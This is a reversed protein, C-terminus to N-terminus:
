KHSHTELLCVPDLCRKAVTENGYGDIGPMFIKTCQLHLHPYWGGNISSPAIAGVIAGKEYVKGIGSVLQHLHGLIFRPGHKVGFFLQGGWGGGQDKDERAYLLEAACPLAVFTNVPVNYDIGLHITHGKTMYHDRWLVSRDELFGGYSFDLRRDSHLKSVWQECVKADLLPNPGFTNLKAAEKNLDVAGWRGKLHPFLLHALSLNNKM